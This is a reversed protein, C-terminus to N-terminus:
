RDGKRKYLEVAAELLEILKDLKENIEEVPTKRGIIDAIAQLASSNDSTDIPTHTSKIVPYINAM